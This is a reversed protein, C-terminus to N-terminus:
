CCLALCGLLGVSGRHLATYAGWVPGLGPGALVRGKREQEVAREAGGGGGPGRRGEGVVGPSGRGQARIGGGAAAGTVGGGPLAPCRGRWAGAERRSRAERGHLALM